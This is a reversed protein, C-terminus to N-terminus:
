FGLAFVCAAQMEAMKNSNLPTIVAGIKTKAVTQIHDLNVPV